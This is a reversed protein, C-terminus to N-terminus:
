GVQRTRHRALVQQNVEIGLGPGSPIRVFGDADRTIGDHILVTRFPHDSCDFELVPELPKLALPTPPLAAIAQLSAALGVGSGWVHPIIPTHWAQSLAAIKKLETFGGCACVDPQLLDLAGAALWPRCAHKGLLNEGGAIFTSTLARLQRYGEIDEPAVPEEFWHVRMEALELLVRRAAAASYACNADIM